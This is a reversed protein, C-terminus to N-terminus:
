REALEVDDLPMVPREPEQATAVATQLAVPEVERRSSIQEMIQNAIRDIQWRYFGVGTLVAVAVAAFLFGPVIGRRKLLLIFRRSSVASVARSRQPTGVLLTGRRSLPQEM